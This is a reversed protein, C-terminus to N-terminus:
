GVLAKYIEMGECLVVKASDTPDSQAAEPIQGIEGIVKEIAALQTLAGAIGGVKIAKILPAILQMADVVPKPAEFKYEVKEM